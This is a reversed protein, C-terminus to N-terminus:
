GAMAAFRVRQLAEALLDIDEEQFLSEPGAPAADSYPSEYLAGIEVVGNETLQQVIMDVFHLQNANLTKDGIFDSLADLAAQRDMGVLSRVFLGLGQAQATAAELEEPSGAGSEILMRQLEALDTETLPLGRRLRHIAVHDLFGQLYARAKERYRALDLSGSRTGKLEGEALEGLTDEFNTYVVKRRKKEILHVLARLRVRILELWQPSVQGWEGGELISQILVLQAAIAPISSQDQLASAIEAIKKRYPEVAAASDLSALQAQYMLLDFRKAEETDAASSLTALPALKAQLDTLDQTGLAAWSETQAFKEVWQLQPRVLFNERPLRAVQGMLGSELVLVFDGDLGAARAEALLQTRVAFSRHALSQGLSGESGPLEANFYDVNQCVDFIFFDKKDEGPGYLEPRLRTGRGVMQWFKTKSRVAKFFLLNVVEPVDIGTDLMDVSVAIHPSDESRSFADILTSVYNVSHTIVKAFAGAYRPYNINFREAIFEAHKQNKAFIITKGLRDGGAVKHGRTMLVELAKDVTNANFLWTNLIAPDVADPIEGEEDWEASDWEEKEEESLEEYRIGEVPFKLPISVTRPPVLYGDSIAQPLEYAFTPVHDEIDFLSYTNRDVEFQPTATLGVLYADFYEFIARYKQYVSRHAEDIIILDYHGIGFRQTLVKGDDTRENILNMMTPYTAVHIRSDAEVDWGLIAPSSGPLNTKFARAAQDVLAVRDALFLVRKVWNAQMLLNSLAVVTRTKGSGTAMVLLAKREKDTELAATVARIAAQQYSRGAIETNIAATSLAKRTTRRDVMLQLQDRTHFGQLPRPPYGSADDWIWHEYGNSYYIVPRQGKEVELADAYLKAQQQGEYPSKATRKAEVVALPKGDSGWLVYDVFGTGTVPGAHTPMHHVEFERDEDKDLAWGAEGLYLDIYVRTEAESYDHSDPLKKNEEKARAIEARLAALQAQLQENDQKQAVLSADKAALEEALKATQDATSPKLVPAPVGQKPTPSLFQGNFMLTPSPRNAPNRTYNLALWICVHFLERLTQESHQVTISANTHIASNAVRRILHFKSVVTEGALRKFTPESMLANLDSKYPLTLSADAEFLWALLSEITRRAYLLSSRPDKRAYLEALRAEKAIAPWEVQLLAFNSNM